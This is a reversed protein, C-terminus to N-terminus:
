SVQKGRIPDGSVETMKELARQTGAWKKMLVKICIDRGFQGRNMWKNDEKVIMYQNYM